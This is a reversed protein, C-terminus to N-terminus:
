RGARWDDFAQDCTLGKAAPAANKALITSAHQKADAVAAKDTTTAAATLKKQAATQDALAVVAKNQGELASSMTAVNHEAVVEADKAAKEGALASDLRLRLISIYVVIAVILLIALALRWHAIAFSVISSLGGTVFSFGLKILTWM